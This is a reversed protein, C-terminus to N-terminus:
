TTQSYTGANQTGSYSHKYWLIGGILLAGALLAAIFATLGIKKKDKLPDILNRQSDPPLKALSTLQGGL